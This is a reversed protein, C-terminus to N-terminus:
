QTIKARLKPCKQHQKQWICNQQEYEMCLGKPLFNPNNISICVKAFNSWSFNEIAIAYLNLIKKADTELPHFDDNELMM